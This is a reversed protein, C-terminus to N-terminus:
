ATFTKEFLQNLAQSNRTELAAERTRGQGNAGPIDSTYAIFWGEDEEIAITLNKQMPAENTRTLPLRKATICRHPVTVLKAVNASVLYRRSIAWRLGAASPENVVAVRFVGVEVDCEPFRLTVYERVFEQAVQVNPISSRSHEALYRSDMM